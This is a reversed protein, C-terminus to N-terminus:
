VAARSDRARHVRLWGLILRGIVVVPILIWMSLTISWHPVWLATDQQVREDWVLGLEHGWYRGAVWLLAEAAACAAWFWRSPLLRRFPQGEAM